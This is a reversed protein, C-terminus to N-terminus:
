PHHIGLSLQSNFNHKTGPSTLMSKDTEAYPDRDDFNNLVAPAPSFAFSSQSNEISLDKSTLRKFRLPM